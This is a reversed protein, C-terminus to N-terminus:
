HALFGVTAAPFAFLLIALVILSAQDAYHMFKSM